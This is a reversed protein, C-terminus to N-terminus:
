RSPTPHASNITEPPAFHAAVDREYIGNGACLKAKFPQLDVGWPIDARYVPDMIAKCFEYLSPYENLVNGLISHTEITVYIPCDPRSPTSQTLNLYQLPCDTPAPTATARKYQTTISPTPFPATIGAGSTPGGRQDENVTSFAVTFFTVSTSAIGSYETSYLETMVTFGSPAYGAATSLTTPVTNTGYTSIGYGRPSCDCTGNPQVAPQSGTMCIYRTNNHVLDGGNWGDPQGVNEDVRCPGTGSPFGAPSSTRDGIQKTDPVCVRYDTGKLNSCIQGAPCGKFCPRDGDSSHSEADEQTARRRTGETPPLFTDPVCINPFDAGPPNCVYGDSCGGGCGDDDSRPQADELMVSRRTADVPLLFTDLICISPFDDDLRNCVYGDSCGGGCEAEDSRPHVDDLENTRRRGEVHPLFTDPVCINPFEGGPPNCVYGDPCGGNCGGNRSRIKHPHAFPHVINTHTPSQFSRTGSMHHSTYIQGTSRAHSTRESGTWSHTQSPHHENGDDRLCLVGEVTCAPPPTYGATSPEIFRRDYVGMMTSTHHPPKFTDSGVDEGRPHGARTHEPRGSSITESDWVSDHSKFDTFDAQVLGLLAFLATSSAFNVSKM